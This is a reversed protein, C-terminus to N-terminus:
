GWVPGLADLTEPRLLGFFIEKEVIHMQNIDGQVDAVRGSLGALKITDVAIMVGTDTWKEKPTQTTVTTDTFVQVVTVFGDKEIEAQIQTGPGRLRFDGLQLRIRFPSFDSPDRGISLLNTYRLSFREVRSVLETGSLAGLLSNIRTHFTTWGPYPRALSLAVVRDGILVRGSDGELMHQPQYAFSLDSSRIARPVQSAPLPALKPFGSKLDKFLMGPLLDAAHPQTSAFRIEFTSEVIPVVKLSVPLRAYAQTDNQSVM